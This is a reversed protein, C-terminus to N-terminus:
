TDFVVQVVGEWETVMVFVLVNVVDDIAVRGRSNFECNRVYYRAVCCVNLHGNPGERIAGNVRVRRRIYLLFTWQRNAITFNYITRDAGSNFWKMPNRGIEIMFVNTFEGREIVMGVGSLRQVHPSLVVRFQCNERFSRWQESDTKRRMFKGPAIFITQHQFTTSRPIAMIREPPKM